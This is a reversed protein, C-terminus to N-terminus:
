NANNNEHTYSKKILYIPRHKTEEYIRGLYEGIIGLAILQIGGLMLVAVMLSPYGKVANGHVLTDTILYVAYGFSCTAISLGLYTAFKLPVTSFSTIGDIAFALLKKYNFGSSGSHRSARVYYINISNFSAWAFLGKMFRNREPMNKISNIVSRSMLRFDGTDEPIKVNSLSNFARYFLHATGKKLFSEGDRSSRVANVVDYGQKWLKVMEPIIEPPDQLDADIPIAADGSCFDLGATLAAEKGFNRTFDILMTGQYKKIVNKLETISKDTSGDNVYVIETDINQENLSIAIQNLKFHLQSINSEENFIPVILSLKKPNCKLNM